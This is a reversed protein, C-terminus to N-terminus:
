CVFAFICVCRFKLWLPDSCVFTHMYYATRGVCPILVCLHICTWSSVALAELLFGHVSVTAVLLHFVVLPFYM